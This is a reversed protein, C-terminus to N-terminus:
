NSERRYTETIDAEIRDSERIFYGSLLWTLPYFLVALILWSLTFGGVQANALEPLFHNILPLGLLIVAFVATVRLSLSAQRRMVDATLARPQAPTQSTPLKKETANM